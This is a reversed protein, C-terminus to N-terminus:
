PRKRRRRRRREPQPLSSPNQQDQEDEEEDGVTDIAIVLLHICLMVVNYLDTIKMTIWQIPESRGEWEKM